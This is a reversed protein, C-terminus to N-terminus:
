TNKELIATRREEPESCLAKEKADAWQHFDAIEAGPYRVRVQELTEGCIASRGTEPNLIDICLM